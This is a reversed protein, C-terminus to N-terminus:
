VGEKLGTLTEQLSSEDEINFTKVDKDIKKILGTLVKGAGIEIFTTVGEAIMKRVSQEWKVSGGVQQVLGESIKPAEVVKEASINAVLPITPAKIEVKELAAKLKLGAPKLLSSHFPGSVALLMARKAGFGKALSVAKEVAKTQGAIVIQGPCNFNAPEVIGVDSASQCLEEVKEIGLGLIAAMTGEGPPVAEQMLRGREQVLWVADSFSLADAAVLASYEGLSHGAVYDPMIGKEKILEFCAISTTLLAPQTHVTLKLKEEPGNFCLDSLSFGLKRDAELFVAKALPFKEFVDKGMGVYQAGQGPFVFAIKGM